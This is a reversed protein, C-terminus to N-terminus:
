SNWNSLTQDLAKIWPAPNNNSNTGPGNWAPPIVGATGPLWAILGPASGFQLGSPNVVLSGPNFTGVGGFANNFPNFGIPNAPIGPANSNYNPDIGLADGWGGFNSQGIQMWGDTGGPGQTTSTGTAFSDNMSTSFGSYYTPIPPDPTPVPTMSQSGLNIELAFAGVNFSSYTAGLARIYYTQGPQVGSYTATVTAGLQGSYQYAVYHLSSNYIVVEPTMSSLGSTQMTATLTGNSNQPVTVTFWEQANYANLTLNPLTIQDASNLLGTINAPTTYWSNSQGNSNFQDPQRVGYISQIGAIDDSNLSNKIGNYDAYMVANEIASHGMGLAHGIEHLAVTEIDFTSGIAWPQATNFFIDGAISTTNLPPPLYTNALTGLGMPYGAIRIDGETPDGQLYSSSDIPQGDDQIQVLNINAVAEWVAAAKQFQLEWQQTTIGDANMAQNLNSTINTPSSYAILTGDPVFSYTITTNTWMGGTTSYLLLRDELGELVPRSVRSSPKRAPSRRSIKIGPM